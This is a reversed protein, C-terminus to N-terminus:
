EKRRGRGCPFPDPTLDKRRSRAVEAIGKLAVDLNNRVEYNPVRIVDIGRARLQKDRFADEEVSLLHGTGDLEIALNAAECYFDVVYSGIIQQRRFHLGALRNGRVADWFLREEATMERRLKKAVSLM